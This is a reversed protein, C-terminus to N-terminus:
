RFERSFLRRSGRSIPRLRCTMAPASCRGGRRSGLTLAYDIGPLRRQSRAFKGAHPATVNDMRSGRRHDPRGCADRALCAVQGISLGHERIEALPACCDPLDEAFWRWSGKWLREPDVGLANLAMVVSGPGCYAPDSQTHFREALPFYGGM